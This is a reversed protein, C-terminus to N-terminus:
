VTLTPNLNRLNEKLTNLMKFTNAQINFVEWLLTQREGSDVCLDDVEVSFSKELRGNKDNNKKKKVNEM